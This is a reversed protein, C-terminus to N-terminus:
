FYVEEQAGDSYTYIIVGHGSGDCDEYVEKKVVTRNDSSSGGSSGTNGGPNGTNGGSSGTNGGSSGSNGGSNGSNGGSSGSNGSSSDSGSNSSSSSDSNNAENGDTDSSGDTEDPEENDEEKISITITMDNELAADLEYNVIQNDALKIGVAEIADSVTGGVLVVTYQLNELPDEAAVVVNVKCRRLIQVIFGEGALEQDPNISIVDGDNLTIGAEDLLQQVTKGMTDEITIQKGDAEITVAASIVPENTEPEKNDIVDSNNSCASLVSLAMVLALIVAAPKLLIRRM